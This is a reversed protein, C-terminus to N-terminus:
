IDKTIYNVQKQNGQTDDANEAKKNVCSILVVVKEHRSESISMNLAQM